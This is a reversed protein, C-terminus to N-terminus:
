ANARKLPTTLVNRVHQYRIGLYDAIQGNKYGQSALWRIKASKTKLEDIQVQMAKNLVIKAAKERKVEKGDVEVTDASTQAVITDDIDAHEIIDKKKANNRRAM